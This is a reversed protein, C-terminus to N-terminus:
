SQHINLTREVHDKEAPITKIPSIPPLASSSAACNMITLSPPLKTAKIISSLNKTCSRFSSTIVERINEGHPWQALNQSLNFADEQKPDM